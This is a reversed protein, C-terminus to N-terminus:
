PSSVGLPAGLTSSATRAPLRPARQLLDEQRGIKEDWHNDPSRDFILLHAEDADARDAYDATQSL